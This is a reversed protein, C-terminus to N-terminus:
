NYRFFLFIGHSQEVAAAHLHHKAVQQLRRRGVKRCLNVRYACRHLIEVLPERTDFLHGRANQLDQRVGSACLRCLQCGFAVAM